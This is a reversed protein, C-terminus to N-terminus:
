QIFEHHCSQMANIKSINFLWYFGWHQRDRKIQSCNGSKVSHFVLCFRSFDRYCQEFLQSNSLQTANRVLKEYRFMINRSVCGKCKFASFVYFIYTYSIKLFLTKSNFITLFNHIISAKLRWYGKLTLFWKRFRLSKGQWCLLLCLVNCFRLNQNEFEAM